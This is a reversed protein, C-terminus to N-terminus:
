GAPDPHTEYNRVFDDPLEPGWLYLSNEPPPSSAQWDIAAPIFDIDFSYEAYGGWPDRIYRFYNSGLVHRGVGWGRSYGNASMRESGLGIEDISGVTWASHHLGYGDSQAFALLHHDSGHAGHMFAVGGSRDSLKLGLVDAFFELSADLNATFMLVHALRQPRTPPTTGRMPSGREAGRRNTPAADPAADPSNKAGAVIRIPLGDPAAIWVAEGIRDGGASDGDAAAAAPAEIMAVSSRQLHRRFREMDEPYALLSLYQLRKTPGQRVAGWCHDHGYTYLDVGHAADRVDLGFNVFFDRAAHVDPVTICFHDISHVAPGAPQRNEQNAM